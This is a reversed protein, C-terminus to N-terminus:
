VNFDVAKIKLWGNLVDAFQQENKVGEKEM